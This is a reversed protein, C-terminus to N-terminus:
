CLPLVPAFSTPANSSLRLLGLGIRSSLNRPSTQRRRNIIARRMESFTPFLSPTRAMMTVCLWSAIPLLRGSKSQGDPIQALSQQLEADLTSTLAPYLAVLAEHAAAAAAAEQSADRPVGSLHILYVKHSRDIANVADYIAAHMIAFSRTPHITAPQAGPTRVVALLNKNWQVVPDGSQAPSPAARGPNVSTVAGAAGAIQGSLGICVAFVMVARTM